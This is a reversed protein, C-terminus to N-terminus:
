EGSEKLKLESKGTEPSPPATTAEGVDKPVPAVTLTGGNRELHKKWNNLGSLRTKEPSNPRYDNQRNNTLRKVHLFALERISDNPHGLLDVLMGSVEPDTGASMDYGWMLQYLIAAEEAPFQSTLEDHLLRGHEPADALWIRLEQIAERRVEAHETKRLIQILDAHDGVLGLTTAALKALLAVKDKSVQLMVPEIPQDIARDFEKEFPRSNRNRQAVPRQDNLWEYGLQLRGGQIRRGAPLQEGTLEAMLADVSEETRYKSPLPLTMPGDVIRFQDETLTGDIRAYKVSGRAVCLQVIGRDARFGEEFKQPEYPIVEIGAVTDPTLVQIVWSDLGSTVTVTMLPESKTSRDVEKGEEPRPRFAVQGRKLVFGGDAKEKPGIWQIVTKSQLLLSNGSGTLTLLADFPEPVVLFEGDRLAAHHPKVRWAGQPKEQYLLVGEPSRYEAPMAVRKEEPPTPSEPTKEEPLAEEEPVKTTPTKVVETPSDPESLPSPDEQKVPPTEPNEDALSPPEAPKALPASEEPMPEDTPSPTEDDRLKPPVDALSPELPEIAGEGKSPEPSKPEAETMEPPKDEPASNPETASTETETKLRTPIAEEKKPPNVPQRDNRAVLPADPSKNGLIRDWTEPNGFTVLLWLSLAVAIAAWPRARKWLPAPRIEPPVEIFDEDQAEMVAAPSDKEVPPIAGKPIVGSGALSAVREATNAPPEYTPISNKSDSSKKMGALNVGALGYMREKTAAPVSVPEGLVLSLIQHSAAVESLNVDSELCVRELQTVQDPTLINDLYEAITNANGQPTNDEVDPAGLRRRRMVERIREVLDTAVSSEKIKQGIEKAQAPELVDDLYALLTRLTLRMM